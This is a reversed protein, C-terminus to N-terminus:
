ALMEGILGECERYKMGYAELFDGKKDADRDLLLVGTVFLRRLFVLGFLDGKAVLENIVRVDFRDAPVGTAYYLAIKLDAALSFPDTGPSSYVAIDVDRAGVPDEVYSGYLYGFIVRPDSSLVQRIKSLEPITPNNEKMENAQDNISLFVLQNRGRLPSTKQKKPIERFLLILKRRRARQAETDSLSFRQSVDLVEIGVVHGEKDFDIVVGDEIEKSSAVFEQKFYVYIADAEKSYEIKM